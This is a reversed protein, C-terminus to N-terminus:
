STLEHISLCGPPISAIMFRAPPTCSQLTSKPKWLVSARLSQCRRWMPSSSPLGEAREPHTIAHGRTFLLLTCACMVRGRAYHTLRRTMCSVARRAAHPPGSRHGRRHARPTRPHRSTTLRHPIRHRAHTPRADRATPRGRVRPGELCRPGSAWWRLWLFSRLECTGWGRSTTRTESSERAVRTAKSSRKEIASPGCQSQGNRHGVSM